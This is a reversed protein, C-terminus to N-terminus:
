CSVVVKHPCESPCNNQRSYIVCAIYGVTASAADLGTSSGVMISHRTM